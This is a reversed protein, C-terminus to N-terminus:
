KEESLDVETMVVRSDFSIADDFRLNVIKEIKQYIKQCVYMYKFDLISTNPEPLFFRINLQGDM